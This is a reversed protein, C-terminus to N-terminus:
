SDARLFWTFHDPPSIESFVLPVILLGLLIGPERRGRPRHSVLRPGREIQAITM